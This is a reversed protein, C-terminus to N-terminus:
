EHRGAGFLSWGMAARCGHLRCLWLSEVDGSSPACRELLGWCKAGEPWTGTFDRQLHLRDVGGEFHEGEHEQHPRHRLGRWLVGDGAALRFLFAIVATVGVADEPSGSELTPGRRQCRLQPAVVASRLAM